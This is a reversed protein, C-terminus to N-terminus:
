ESALRLTEQRDRIENTVARVKFLLGNEDVRERLSAFQRRTPTEPSRAVELLVAELDDLM